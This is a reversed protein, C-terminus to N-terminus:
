RVTMCTGEAYWLDKLSSVKYYGTGKRTALALGPDTGLRSLPFGRPEEGGVGGYMRTRMRRNRSKLWHRDSTRKSKASPRKAAGLNKEPKM